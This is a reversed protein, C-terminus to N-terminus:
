IRLFEAAHQRGAMINVLYAYIDTLGGNCILVDDHSQQASTEARIQETVLLTAEALPENADCLLQLSRPFTEEVIGARVGRELLFHKVSNTIRTREDSSSGTILIKM